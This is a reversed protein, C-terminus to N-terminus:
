REWTAFISLETAETCYRVVMCMWWDACDFRGEMEMEMETGWLM